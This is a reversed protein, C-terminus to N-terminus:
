GPRRLADLCEARWDWLRHAILFSMAWHSCCRPRLRHWCEIPVKPAALISTAELSPRLLGGSKVLPPNANAM